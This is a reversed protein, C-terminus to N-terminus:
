EPLTELPNEREERRQRQLLDRAIACRQRHLEASLLRLVSALLLAEDAVGPAGTEAVGLMAALSNAHHVHAAAAARERRVEGPAIRAVM